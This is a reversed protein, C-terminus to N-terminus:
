RRHYFMVHQNPQAQRPAFDFGLKELWRIRKPMATPVVNGMWRWHPAQMAIFRRSARTMARWHTDALPTGLFWIAGCSPDAKDPNVGCLGVLGDCHWMAWIPHEPTAMVHAAPTWGPHMQGFARVTETIELRDSPRLNGALEALDRRSAPLTQISV